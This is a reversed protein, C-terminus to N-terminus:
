VDINLTDTGTASLSRIFHHRKNWQLAWVYTDPNVLSAGDNIDIRNASNMRFMKDYTPPAIGLTTYRSVPFRACRPPLWWLRMPLRLQLHRYRPMKWSTWRDIDERIWWFRNCKLPTKDPSNLEEPEVTRGSYDWKRGARQKRHHFFSGRFQNETSRTFFMNM